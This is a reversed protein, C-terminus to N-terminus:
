ALLVARAEDLAADLKSADRGGAVAIDRQKGFGGGIATAIPGLIEAANLGSDPAVAVAVAPRGNATVAGLVAARLNGQNRLSLALRRVSDAEGTGTMAVVVGDRATGLLDKVKSADLQGTLARNDAQLAKLETLKKRVGPVVQTVPVGVEAAVDGLAQETRYLLDLTGM